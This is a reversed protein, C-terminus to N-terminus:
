DLMLDTKKNEEELNDKLVLDDDINQNRLTDLELQLKKIKNKYVISERKIAFMRVLAMLFGLIIGSTLVALFFIWVKLGPSNKDSLPIKIMVQDISKNSKLFQKDYQNPLEKKADSTRLYTQKIFDGNNEEELRNIFVISIILILIFLLNKILQM